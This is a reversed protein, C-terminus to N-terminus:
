VVLNYNRSIKSPNGAASLIENSIISFSKDRIAVVKGTIIQGKYRVKLTMDLSIKEKAKAIIIETEIEKFDKIFSKGEDTIEKLIETMELSTKGKFLEKFDVM